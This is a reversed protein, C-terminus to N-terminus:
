NMPPRAPRPTEMVQVEARGMSRGQLVKGHLSAIRPDSVRLCPLVLETVRLWTRRNVLYSVRGSEHDTALFHAYVEVSTQQYRLRCVPPAVM